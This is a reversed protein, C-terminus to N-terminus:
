ETDCITSKLNITDDKEVSEASKLSDLLADLHSLFTTRIGALEVYQTRISDLEVVAKDVNSKSLQSVTAYDEKIERIDETLVDVRHQLITIEKSTCTRLDEIQGQLIRHDLDLDVIVKAKNEQCAILAAQLKQYNEIVCSFTSERLIARQEYEVDFGEFLAQQRLYESKSITMAGKVNGLKVFLDEVGPFGGTIQGQVYDEIQTPVRTAQKAPVAASLNCLLGAQLLALLISQKKM